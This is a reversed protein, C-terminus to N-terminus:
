AIIATIKATEGRIPAQTFIPDGYLQVDGRSSGTAM